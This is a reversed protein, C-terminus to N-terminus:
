RQAGQMRHVRKGAKDPRPAKATSCLKGTQERVTRSGREGNQVARQNQGTYLPTAPSTGALPSPSYCYDQGGPWSANRRVRPLTSVTEQFSSQTQQQQQLERLLLPISLLQEQGTGCTGKQDSCPPLRQGSKATFM